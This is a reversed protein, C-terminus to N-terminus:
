KYCVFATAHAFTANRSSQLTRHLAEDWQLTPLELSPISMRSALATEGGMLSNM